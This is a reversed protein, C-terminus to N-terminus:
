VSLMGGIAILTSLEVIAGDLESKLEENKSSILEIYERIDYQVEDYEWGKFTHEDVTESVKKINSRVYVTDINVELKQINESTSRVNKTVKM